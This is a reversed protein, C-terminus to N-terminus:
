PAKSERDSKDNQEQTANQQPTMTDGTPRQGRDSCDQGQCSGQSRQSQFPNVAGPHNDRERESPDDGPNKQRYDEKEDYRRDAQEMPNEPLAHNLNSKLGIRGTIPLRSRRLGRRFIVFLLELIFPFNDIRRSNQLKKRTRLFHHSVGM